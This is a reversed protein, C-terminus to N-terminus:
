GTHKQLRPINKKTRQQQWVVSPSSFLLWFECRPGLVGVCGHSDVIGTSPSLLAGFCRLEPELARAESATLMKLDGVGNAAGTAALAELQATQGPATAVVLKGIRSFAVGRRECYDYLRRRGEVCLEAKASGPPYYLGGHVVESSRSSTGTGFSPAAELVLVEAGALAAARAVAL